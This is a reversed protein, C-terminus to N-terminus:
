AQKFLLSPLINGYTCAHIDYMTNPIGEKRRQHSNRKLVRVHFFDENDKMKGTKTLFDAVSYQHLPEGIGLSYVTWSPGGVSLTASADNVPRGERYLVMDIVRGRMDPDVLAVHLLVHYRSQQIGCAEIPCRLANGVPAQNVRELTCNINLVNSGDFCPWRLARKWAAVTGLCAVCTEGRLTFGALRGSSGDNDGEEAKM